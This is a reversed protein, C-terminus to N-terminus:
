EVGRAPLAFLVTSGVSAGVGLFFLGRLLADPLSGATGLVPICPLLVASGVALAAATSRAPTRTRRLMLAQVVASAISPPVALAYLGVVGLPVSGGPPFVLLGAILLWVVSTAAALVLGVTRMPLM